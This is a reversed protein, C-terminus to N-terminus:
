QTIFSEPDTWIPYEDLRKYWYPRKSIVIQRFDLREAIPYTM